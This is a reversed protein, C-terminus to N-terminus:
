GTTIDKYPDKLEKIQNKLDAIEKDKAEDELRNFYRSVSKRIEKREEYDSGPYGMNKVGRKYYTERRSKVTPPFQLNLRMFFSINHKRLACYVM